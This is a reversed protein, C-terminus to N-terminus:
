VAGRVGRPSLSLNIFHFVQGALQQFPLQAFENQLSKTILFFVFFLVSISVGPARPWQFAWALFTKGPM